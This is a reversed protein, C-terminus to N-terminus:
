SSSRSGVSACWQQRFADRAIEFQEWAWTQAPTKVLTVLNSLSDNVQGISSLLENFGWEFTANLDGIGQKINNLDFSLSEMGESLQRSFAEDRSKTILINEKQLEENSAILSRTQTSIERKITGVFANAQLYDKYSLSTGVVYNTM